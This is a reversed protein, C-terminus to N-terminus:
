VKALQRRRLLVFLLSAFGAFVAYNGPEPVATTGQVDGFPSEVIEKPQEKV